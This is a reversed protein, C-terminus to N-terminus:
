QLRASPTGLFRDEIRIAELRPSRQAHGVLVITYVSGAEFRVKNVNLLANQKGEPHIQLTVEMPDVESYNSETGSNVGSFLTDRGVAYVDVGGIEPAAHIVRVKAKGSPPPILNDSFIVLEAKGDKDYAVLTYHSGSSLGESNEALLKGGAQGAPRVWFTFRDSPLERYETVTKYGLDEFVVRDDALIDVSRGDPIAAVVRVLANDRQNVDASAPATSRDSESSSTRTNQTQASERSCAAALLLLSVTITLALSGLNLKRNVTESRGDGYAFAM